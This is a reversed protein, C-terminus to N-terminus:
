HKPSKELSERYNRGFKSKNRIMKQCCIELFEKIFVQPEGTRVLVRKFSAEYIENDSPQRFIGGSKNKQKPLIEKM